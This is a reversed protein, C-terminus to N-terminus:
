LRLLEAQQTRAALPYDHLGRVHGAERVARLLDLDPEAHVWGPADPVGEALVGDEPLGEDAPTYIGAAGTTSELGVLWPASGVLPSLATYCQNELARALSGVRVRAHGCRDSTCTPVLLLEAGGEAAARAQQPFESDYCIVVAMRGLATEFVRAGEGPTLGSSARESPTLLLKDQHGCGGDPGFLYARNFYAGGEEVPLSGALLYVGHRRALGAHLDRYAPLWAQLAPLQALEDRWTTPPCLRVLGMGGYEPFVLLDAHPAAQEVWASLHAAYADWTDSTPLPYQALALRLPRTM